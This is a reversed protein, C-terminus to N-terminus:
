RKTISCVLCNDLATLLDGLNKIAEVVAKEYHHYSIGEFMVEREREREGDLRVM